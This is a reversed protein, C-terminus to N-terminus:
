LACASLTPSNGHPAVVTVRPACPKSSVSLQLPVQPSPASAPWQPIFCKLTAVRGLRVSTAHWHLPSNLNPARAHSIAHTMTWPPCPIGSTTHVHSLLM